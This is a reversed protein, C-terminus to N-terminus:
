VVVVAVVLRLHTRSPLPLIERGRVKVGGPLHYTALRADGVVEARLEGDIAGEAESAPEIAPPSAPPTKGGEAAGAGRFFRLVACLVKQQQQSQYGASTQAEEDTKATPTRERTSQAADIECPASSSELGIGSSPSNSGGNVEEM